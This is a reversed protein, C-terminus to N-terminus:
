PILHYNYYEIFSNLGLRYIELLFHNDDHNHWLGLTTGIDYPHPSFDFRKRPKFYTTRM